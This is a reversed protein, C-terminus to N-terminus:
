VRASESATYRAELAANREVLAANEARLRSNESRLDLVEAQVQDLETCRCKQKGAAKEVGALRKKLDELVGSQRAVHDGLSALATRVQPGVATSVADAVGQRAAHALADMDLAPPAPPPPLALRLPAAPTTAQM